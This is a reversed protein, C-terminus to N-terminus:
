SATPAREHRLGNDPRRSLGADMSRLREWHRETLQRMGDLQERMRELEAADFTALMPAGDAVLPGYLAGIRDRGDDTLEVLVMRRDATDRSRRVFGKRELRDIMTTTAAASLGIATALRSASMPGESLWDLGRLDTPNVDLLRGVEDDFAQTTRQYAQMAHGVADILAQRSKPM